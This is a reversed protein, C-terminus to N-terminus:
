LPNVRSHGEDSNSGPKDDGTVLTSLKEWKPYDGARHPGSCIFFGVPNNPPQGTKGGKETRKTVVVHERTAKGKQNKWGSKKHNKREFRAKKNGEIKFKQTSITGTAGGLGLGLRVWPHVPDPYVSRKLVM